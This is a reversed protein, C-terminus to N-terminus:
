NRLPKGTKLLAEMRAQTKEMGCLSLFAERELDLIHQESVTNGPRVDGGCLINALKEGIVADHETIQNALRWSYLGTKFMAVGDRGPVVLNDPPLPPRYGTRAMGLVVQKADHILRDRSITVGDGERLFWLTRAEEASKSVRAMGLTEFVRRIFSLRSVEMDAPIKALARELMQTCGGGAPIVGAGVEVLGMYLEAGAQIRDCHLCVECGGGLAMGAPAAVVPVKAYKLGLNARQFRRVVEDLMDWNGMQAGMLILGLNAGVSFNQAHNAIVLGVFNREAEEVAEEMMQIIDDDIANMKTHFELCLVGDGIDILSAGLNDQVINGEEKLDGLTIVTEPVEVPRYEDTAFDFYYRRTGIKKYFCGEGDTLVRQVVEPVVFGEKEMREVTERVGIYDWLEFPGLDWNFGWKVANDINVIDDAIEGIRKAAYILVHATAKWALYAARDSGNIMYRVREGPHDIGKTSKVSEFRPKTVPRYELTKWDLVMRQDGDKKYFGGRTKNGLWRRQIMQDVFEPLRFVNREDDDPLTDYCNRTVHAMTDLGVLDCTKFAASRPRGMAPGFVTDVEEITYGEEVMLQMVKLLGYVGIRNAIFNPTDKAFVTGKGLVDRGFEVWTDVVEQDTDPHPVIELLKMFRVPNFFHTVLFNRRFELPMGEAMASVSLGSTNSSVIAGFKLHPLIDQFLRRKIQLDEVVAEIVIDCQSIRELDDEVNGPTVLSAFRKEYFLPAPKFKLANEIGNLALRNRAERSQREEESLDRPVIDLLLVPIGANALHAAIGSGMVGAGLVCAREIRRKM